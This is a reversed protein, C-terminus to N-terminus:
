YAHRHAFGTLVTRALIKLDLVLSWHEIYYLDNLIRGAMKDDTDTAGRWGNVQALGTIGPKVRHRSAFRRIRRVYAANLAIAHPRPGVLSMEGRLVNLLQPLEDFSTRRLWRGLRTVREDGPRAQAFPATPDHRMTRFKLLEFVDHDFGQRQQRFLAPGPSELKIALAVVAMPLAFLALVTTSVLVDIARKAFRGWDRIPQRLLTAIPVGALREDVAIPRAYGVRDPCLRVDVPLAALRDALAAIRRDAHWPLALFVEDLQRRRALAVLDDLTRVPAVGPRRGASAQFVGVLDIDADHQNRLLDLFRACVRDDGCVIAARRAALRRVTRSARLGCAVIAHLAALAGCGLVFWAWLATRALPPSSGMLWTVLALAALATALAGIMRKLAPAFTRLTRLDLAPVAFCSAVFTAAVFGVAAPGHAPPPEAAVALDAVPALAALAAGYGLVILDRVMRGSLAPELRGGLGAGATWGHRDVRVASPTRETLSYLAAV